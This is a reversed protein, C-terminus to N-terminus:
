QRIYKKTFALAGLFSGTSDSLLDWISADRGPIFYQHLEDTFGYLTGIIFVIFILKSPSANPLSAAIARGLLFGLVAYELIHLIKDMGIIEFDATFPKEMSSVSFILIAYIIVPFWFKLFHKKRNGM